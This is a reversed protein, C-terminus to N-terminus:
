PNYGGESRRGHKGDREPDLLTPPQCRTFSLWPSPLCVFGPVPVGSLAYRVAM